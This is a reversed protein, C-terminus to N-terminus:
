FHQQHQKYNYLDEEVRLVIEQFRIQFYVQIPWKKLFYKFPQSHHLRVKLDVDNFQICKAELKQLFEFSTLYRHHFVDPDAPSFIQSLHMDLCVVISTWVSNIIFDFDSTNNIMQANRYNSNTIYM